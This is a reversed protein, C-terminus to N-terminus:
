GGNVGVFQLSKRAGNGGARFGCDRKKMISKLSTPPSIELCVVGCTLVVYCCFWISTRPSVAAPTHLACPCGQGHVGQTQPSQLARAKQNTNTPSCQDTVGSQTHHCTAGPGRHPWTTHASDQSHRSTGWLRKCDSHPKESTVLDLTNSAPPSGHESALNLPTILIFYLPCFTSSHDSSTM